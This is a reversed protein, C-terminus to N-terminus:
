KSPAGDRYQVAGADPRPGPFYGPTMGPLPGFTKGDLTVPKSLDIGVARAPSDPTLRFSDDGPKWLRKGPALVSDTALWGGPTVEGGIWNFHAHADIKWRPTSVWFRNNSFVNNLFWVNPAGREPTTSGMVLGTETAFTNHYLYILGDSGAFYYIDRARGGGRGERPTERFRNRYVYMPGAKVDKLRLHILADTSVNDHWEADIEGGTPELADDTIDRLVNNYVKLRRAYSAYQERTEGGASDQIGGWHQYIENDHVACDDGAYYLYIARHDKDGWEKFQRWLYGHHGARPSMDAVYNLTVKNRRITVRHCAPPAGHGNVLISARGNAVANDEVIVDSSGGCVNVGVGGNRVTLGRVVVFRRGVVNVVGADDKNMPRGFALDQRNADAKNRFRVYTFEDRSGFLAELGDWSPDDPPATFRGFYAAAERATENAQSLRMVTRGNWTMHYPQFPFDSTKKRYVGANGMKPDPEWGAVRVGGDLVTGPEGELVIPRGAEGSRPFSVRERYVGPRVRVTDGPRAADLGKQVYAFPADPAGTATADSGKTDVYITAASAATACATILCAVILALRPHPRM